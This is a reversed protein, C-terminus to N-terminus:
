AFGAQALAVGHQLLSKVQPLQGGGQNRYDVGGAVLDGVGRNELDVFALPGKARELTTAATIKGERNYLLTTGRLGSAALDIWGDRDIDFALIADAGDPLGDLPM